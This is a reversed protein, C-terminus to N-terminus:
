SWCWTAPPSSKRRFRRIPAAKATATPSAWTAPAQEAFALGPASLTVAARDLAQQDELKVGLM